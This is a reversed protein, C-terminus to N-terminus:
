RDDPCPVNIASIAAFPMSDTIFAVIPFDVRWGIKAAPPM